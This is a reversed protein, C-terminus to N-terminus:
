GNTLSTIGWMEREERQRGRMCKERQNAIQLLASDNRKLLQLGDTDVIYIFYASTKM